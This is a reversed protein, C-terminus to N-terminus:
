FLKAVILAVIEKVSLGDTNIHIQAKNYYYSREFLHKRIFDKLSFEDQIHAILPRENNETMLRSTLSDLSVKLYITIVNKESSLFEITNGYCPTGGGTAVVINQESTIHNKLVDNEKKRFYIEGKEAFLEPITKEEELEIQTDLDIFSYKLAAALQKGVTSKGSGMYGLLVLKMFSFYRKGENEVPKLINKM